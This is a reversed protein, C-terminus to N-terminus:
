KKRGMWALLAFGAGGALAFKAPLPLMAWRTYPSVPVVPTDAEGREQGGFGPEYLSDPRKRAPENKTQQEFIKGKLLLFDGLGPSLQGLLSLMKGSGGVLVDRQPVVACKLIADAVLEPAYIPPPLSPEQEMYNRAHQPFPTNIAAPKVLCLSVPVKEHELEMRLADTFGKVAHKSVSYMGQVPLARDSVVSGVNIIVGAFEGEGRERFHQAAELSGYVQGWFNTDFLKRHDESPIDRMRGYIALGADNIWTDFGGFHDKAARSLARVQEEDGVDAVQYIVQGGAAQLEDRLKKLSEEDRAALVLKAGAKSAARATVLGIGSTAGTLVIVQDKLLKFKM